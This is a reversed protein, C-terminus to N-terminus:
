LEWKCVFHFQIRCVILQEFSVYKFHELESLVRFLLFVFQTIYITFYVHSPSTSFNVTKLTYLECLSLCSANDLSYFDPQSSYLQTRSPRLLFCLNSELQRRLRICVESLPFRLHTSLVQPGPRWKSKHWSEVMMDDQRSTKRIGKLKNLSSSKISFYSCM